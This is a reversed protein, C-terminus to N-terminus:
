ELHFLEPLPRMSDDANAGDSEFFPAMETQWRDNIALEKM